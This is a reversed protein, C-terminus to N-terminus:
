GWKMIGAGGLSGLGGLAAGALQYKNTQSAAREANKQAETGLIGSAIAEGIGTTLNAINSTAGYGTEALSGQRGSLLAELLMAVDVPLQASQEIAEGSRTLGGAALQNTISEGRQDVLSKFADGGMIQALIADLGEPTSGQAYQNYADLGTEQYPQFMPIVDQLARGQVGAANNIKSKSGLMKSVWQDLNQPNNSKFNIM